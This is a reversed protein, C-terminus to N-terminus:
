RSYGINLGLWFINQESKIYGLEAPRHTASLNLTATVPGWTHAASLSGTIDTWGTRSVSYLYTSEKSNALGLSARAVLTAQPVEQTWSLSPGGYAGGLAEMIDFRASVALSLHGTPAWATAVTVESTPDFGTNPFAMYSIGVTDTLPGTPAAYSLFADAQNVEKTTTSFKAFIMATADHWSAWAYPWVGPKADYGYGRSVYPAPSGADAGYQAFAASTLLIMLLSIRNM